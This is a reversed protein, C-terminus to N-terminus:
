AAKAGDRSRDRSGARGGPGAPGAPPDRERRRVRRQRGAAAADAPRRRHAAPAPWCTRHAPRCRIPWGCRSGWCRRGTPAHRRGAAPAGPAPVDADADAEYRMASPWRSSRGPTTTWGSARSACCGCSRRSPASNPITTAASTRCGARRRACGARKPRNRPSCRRRDVGDAGAAAVSRAGAPAAMEQGAALLPDQARIAERCAGCSGAKACAAPASCWGACAPRACCAACCSPPLRCTTSAAARCRRAATGARAPRRHLDRRGPRAGGRPRHHLPAGDAASLRDAGHPHPGARAVRRGGSVPRAGAGEGLWPVTQLDAEAIARARVPDGGSREALRIVGLRLTQSAGRTGDIWGCWRWRAAASIPWSATPPRSAACCARPPTNRRRSARVARPDARGAHARQLAAVFDPGNEADRVAATALVEFPQAGMARAVAHYRHM